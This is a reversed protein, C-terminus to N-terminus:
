GCKKWGCPVFKLSQELSRLKTRSPGVIPLVLTKKLTAYLILTMKPQKAFM